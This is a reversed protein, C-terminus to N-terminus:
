DCSSEIIINICTGGLGSHFGVWEIAKETLGNSGAVWEKTDHAYRIIQDFVGCEVISLSVLLTIVLKLMEKKRKKQHLLEFFQM